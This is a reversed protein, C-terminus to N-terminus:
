SHKKTKRTNKHKNKLRSFIFNKIIEKVEQNQNDWDSEKIRLLKIGQEECLQNKKEDREKAGELSHWYNGDFEIGLNLIPLYIDLEMLKNPFLGKINEFIEGKYISRVFDVVEKEKKSFHAKFCNPCFIAYSILTTYTGDKNKHIKMYERTGESVFEEGCVLCKFKRGTDNLYEEKSFLPIINREKLQSCFTEWHNSRRTQKVKEKFKKTKSFSDVGYKQLCTEQIKKRVTKCHNPNESGYKELCTQKIKEKVVASQFTFEVGYKEICTQKAKERVGKLHAPNEIGYKELFSEKYKQQVKENQFVNEVGYNKLCTQKYKERVNKNTASCKVSCFRYGAFIQNFSLKKGCTPCNPITIKRLHNKYIFFLFKLPINRGDLWKRFDSSIYKKIRSSSLSKKDNTLFNEFEELFKEPILYETTM